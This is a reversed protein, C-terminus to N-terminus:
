FICMKTCTARKAIHQICACWAGIVHKAKWTQKQYMYIYKRLLLLEIYHTRKKKSSVRPGWWVKVLGCFTLGLEARAFVVSLGILIRWVFCCCNGIHWRWIINTKHLHRKTFVNDNPLITLTTIWPPFHHSEPSFSLLDLKRNTM